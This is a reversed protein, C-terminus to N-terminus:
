DRDKVKKKKSEIYGSDDKPRKSKKFIRQQLEIPEPQVSGSRVGEPIENSPTELDSVVRASSGADQGLLNEVRTHESLLEVKANLKSFENLATEEYETLRVKITETESLLARMAEKAEVEVGQVKADLSNYADKQADCDNNLLNIRSEIGEINKRSELEMNTIDDKSINLAKKEVDQKKDRTSMGEKQDDEANSAISTVRRSLSDIRTSLHAIDESFTRSSDGFTRTQIQTDSARPFMRQMQYSVNSAIENSNLIDLRRQMGAITSECCLVRSYLQEFAQFYGVSSTHSREDITEGQVQLPNLQSPLMSMPMTGSESRHLRDYAAVENGGTLHSSPGQSRRPGTDIKDIVNSYRTQLAAVAENMQKLTAALSEFEQSVMEDKQEQDDRLLKLDRAIEATTRSVVHAEGNIELPLTDSKKQLARQNHNSEIAIIRSSHDTVDKDLKSLEDDFDLITKKFQLLSDRQKSILDVLGADDQGDGTIENKLSELEGSIADVRKKCEDMESRLTPLLGISKKISDVQNSLSDYGNQLDQAKETKVTLSSVKSTLDAYSEKTVASVKLNDIKYTLQDQASIISNISEERLNLNNLYQQMGHVKDSVDNMIKELQLTKFENEPKSTFSGTSGTSISFLTTALVHAIKDRAEGHKRCREALRETAIQSKEIEKEQEEALSTFSDHHPRWRELDTKKKELKAAAADYQMTLSGEKTVSQAFHSLYQILNAMDRSSSESGQIHVGGASVPLPPVAFTTQPRRTPTQERSRLTGPSSISTDINVNQATTNDTSARRAPNDKRPLLRPDM